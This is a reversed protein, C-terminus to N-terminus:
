FYLSGLVGIRGVSLGISTGTREPATGSVRERDRSVLAQARWQAGLSLSSTVMWQAGVDASLGGVLSATRPTTFTTEGPVVSTLTAPEVQRWGVVAGVSLFQSVNPRVPRFWRHGLSLDVRSSKRNSLLSASPTRSYEAGVSGVWARNPARFRLVGVSSFSGLNFEVGWQGARFPLTDSAAAGSASQASLPAIAATASFLLALVHHRTASVRLSPALPMPYLTTM